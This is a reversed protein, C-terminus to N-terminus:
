TTIADPNWRKGNRVSCNLGIAGITSDVLRSLLYGGSKFSLLASCALSLKSREKKHIHPFFSILCPEIQKCDKKNRLYAAHQLCFTPHKQTKTGEKIYKQKTLPPSIALNIKIIPQPYINPCKAHKAEVLITGSRSPPAYRLRTQPTQDPKAATQSSPHGHPHEPMFRQM